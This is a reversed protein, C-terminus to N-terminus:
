FYMMFTKNKYNRNNSNGLKLCLIQLLVKKKRQSCLFPLAKVLQVWLISILPLFCRVTNYYKLPAHWKSLTVDQELFSEYHSVFICCTISFMCFYLPSSNLVSPSFNHHFCMQLIRMLISHSRYVFYKSQLRLYKNSPWLYSQKKIALESFFIILQMTLHGYSLLGIERKSESVGQISLNRM